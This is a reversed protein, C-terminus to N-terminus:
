FRSKLQGHVIAKATISHMASFSQTDKNMAALQSVAVIM